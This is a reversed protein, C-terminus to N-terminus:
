KGRKKMRPRRKKKRKAGHTHHLPNSTYDQGWYKILNLLWQIPDDGRSRKGAWEKVRGEAANCSRHLAQRVHGTEHCHDLVADDQKLHEKCLPCKYGQEKVKLQRLEKVQNAKIRPVAVDGTEGGQGTGQDDM